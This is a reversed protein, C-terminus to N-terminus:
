RAVYSGGFTMKVLILAVYVGGFIYIFRGDIEGYSGDVVIYRWGSLGVFILVCSSM